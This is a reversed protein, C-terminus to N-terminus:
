LKKRLAKALDDSSIAEDYFNVLRGDPGMLYLVSSHDMAYGSKGLPTKKAYVRYQKEVDAIAADSGTLGAFNPGFAKV